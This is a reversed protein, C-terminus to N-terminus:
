RSCFLTLWTNWVQLHVAAFIANSALDGSCAKTDDSVCSGSHMLGYTSSTANSHKTSHVGPSYASHQMTDPTKTDIRELPGRTGYAKAHCSRSALDHYATTIGQRNLMVATGFLFLSSKTVKSNMSTSLAELCLVLFILNLSKSAGSKSLFSHFFHSPHFHSPFLSIIAWSASCLARSLGAKCLTSRLHM